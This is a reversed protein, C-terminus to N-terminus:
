QPRTKAIARAHDLWPAPLPVLEVPEGYRQELATAILHDAIQPSKPLLPGHLYTGIANRYRVGETGDKGNNGFGSIVRALPQQGEHLFTLGSHNEYGILEGFESSSIVINGINREAGSDTHLAFIGAGEIIEGEFTKYYAGFLQYTACIALAPTDNEILERLYPAIRVIDEKVATQSSEQGGGSCILDTDKFAAPGDGPEFNVVKVAIDRWECRKRLVLLNGADGYINMQRPYLSLITLSMQSM